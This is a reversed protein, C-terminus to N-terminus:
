CGSPNPSRRPLTPSIEQIMVTRIGAHRAHELAPKVETRPPDIMGMLGVFVLDKELDETKVEEINDPINKDARYAFGLVRLAEKTMADNAALINKRMDETMERPKDDMGLYKSCLTLVIDPAGKMAIVDWDKHNEDYFPSPDNPSPDNVDHITIMRKRESDFPVENERPYADKIEPHAAGAKAAAVLLAGETPDGVIRYTQNSESEGTSEILADNNLVGLWLTSLIAPYKKMDVPKNDVHFEGKPTYGTGSVSVFQGDAWIRTVTM